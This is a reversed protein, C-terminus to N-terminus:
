KKATSNIAAQAAALRAVPVRYPSCSVYDLGILHSFEISSPEGGHEGCIGINCHKKAKRIKEVAIQMLSGVGKRDLVEFPDKELIGKELYSPIFKGADDRSFGLTTQTLDNTGFSFFDSFAAIEDATVAARPLEIMCGVEYGLKVGHKQMEEAAVRDVLARLYRMEEANCLVPVMIEPRVKKGQKALEAAAQFIATAQMESIEPYVIGLRCGRFGLMPNFEHLAANLQGLKEPPVGMERALEEVAKQERPLFEHLPPDLLRIKVPLGQMIRFLELFDQKQFPLLRQLAKRRAEETDALIMERVAKIRNEEFFMHETRCLGIGEAGFGRAVRADKLTDANARVGLGRFSDAWKLLLAFESSLSPETLELQGLFVEGSNGDISLIEGEMIKIEGEGRQVAFFCNKEDVKIAECGVICCKGMGRAVIAAHSTLGGTSTLIGQAAHMGEIDEPSTEPRVLIVKESNGAAVIQSAKEASFVAKGTAAGPSAALGKAIARSKQKSEPSFHKHLLQSVQEPKVRLLAEQRSILGERAMDVAIKVAAQATRKGSRTQLLFLKKNEITFEFDQMERYHKELLGFVRQLESFVGPMAKKLSSIPKPTRIGAVVDEGQANLLFEGYHEKKGTAPNRTFAVGTGSNNGMNGFVMAQVTVGTGADSRLGHIKRYSVARPNNWSDFVANIALALQQWTDQPFEKGKKGNVLAKYEPVIKQLDSANLENDQKINKQKKAKELIKEFEDHKIGLVVNGFMQIFRRYSDWATRENTKEAFGKATEDSLGLNLITDMMGPMSVYSGSRVSVLLPNSASGLKKGSKKELASLKQKLQEELGKPWKRNNSYYARCAEISITFGPPVPLGISVMESLQAGKNGLLFQAHETNGKKTEEFLFVLQKM